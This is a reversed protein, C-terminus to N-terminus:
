PVIAGNERLLNKLQGIKVKAPSINEKAAIAAGAGAAQGGAMCVSQVRLASNAQRDSSICRGAVFLHDVGSALLARYPITPVVGRELRQPAVGGETHIDIPYFANAISDDWRKGTLYDEATIVYQGKVRYTERVGTEASVSVLRANEGGPLTKIFRLSRLISQRGRINADTRLPGTSNDAGYVYMRNGAPRPSFLFRRVGGFMDEPRLKGDKIAQQFRLEIEKIDVKAPDIGSDITYFMSGPQTKEERMREVGALEAVAGNGTCDIIEKCYITRSQGMAVTEVRWNVFFPAIAPQTNKTLSGMKIPSEYYRIEVGAKLCMEEALLAYLLPNVPISLKWHHLGHDVSFDPMSGGDLEVTQCVLEWGIGAIVQKGWAHFLGPYKVGATTITGGLQFGMEVLITKAGARASQVAAPIGAAGGGVILVDCYVAEGVGDCYGVNALGMTLLLVTSLALVFLHKMGNVSVMHGKFVDCDM